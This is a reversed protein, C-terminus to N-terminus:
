DRGAQRIQLQLRRFSLRAAATNYSNPQPPTSNANPNPKPKLNLTPKSAPAPVPTSIHRSHSALCGYRMHSSTRHEDRERWCVRSDSDPPKVKEFGARCVWCSVLLARNELQARLRSLPPVVTLRGGACRGSDGVRTGAQRAGVLHRAQRSYTNNERLNPLAKDTTHITSHSRTKHQSM